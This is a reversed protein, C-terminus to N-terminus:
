CPMIVRKTKKALFNTELSHHATLDVAQEQAHGAQSYVIVGLQRCASRSLSLSSYCCAFAAGATCALRALRVFPHDHKHVISSSVNKQAHQRQGPAEGAVRVASGCLMRAVTLCKQSHHVLADCFCLKKYPRPLGEVHAQMEGLKNVITSFPKCVCECHPCLGNRVL